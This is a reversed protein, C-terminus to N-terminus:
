RKQPRWRNLLLSNSVVSVSSLAMAAGALMPSLYGLAAAPIGLANYLFAWFLNQKIKGLTEEAIQIADLIQMPDNRMLTISAAEMAVDAGSAMAFSLDAAALAPGDNIGDGVMALPGLKTQLRKVAALKAEPLVDSEVEDIGLAQALPRAAQAHDGTLLVTRIGRSKLAVMLPLATAKIPDRFGLIGILQADGGTRALFAYSLGEGEIESLLSLHKAELNLGAEELFRRNGLLYNRGEMLGQVGKGMFTQFQEVAFNSLNQERAAEQVAIAYPHRSSAQLSAAWRLGLTGDEEFWFQRALAPKGETLTGTKDFAIVSLGKAKELAVADKIMIGYRAAVGTGVMIATPTALGLSCPCAIVLVAVARLLAIELGFGLVLHMGFTGLAIVLVVPVFIASVRDVLQQIPPKLAQAEEIMHVMRALLSHDAIQQVDLELRGDLNLVGGLVQEGVEIYRPVSEGTVFSTDLHAGGAVIVGDVPIREGARVLVRQGVQVDSLATKVEQGESLVLVFDPRLSQLERIALVTRRKARAELWKGFLVLSIVVAASEFYNHGTHGELFQYLSFFYASSTGLVVLVDMNTSGSRLAYWAGRYFRAGFLFQVLSALSLELSPPLSLHFGLLMGWMPLTLPLSCIMAGLAFWLERETHKSDSPVDTRVKEEWRAKYGAKEVAELVADNDKWDISLLLHAKETALNVSAERVGPVKKLSNEVRRVCAACTMGEIIITKQQDSELSM